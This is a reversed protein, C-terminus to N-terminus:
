VQEKREGEREIGKDERREKQAPLPQIHLSNLGLSVVLAMAGPIRMRKVATVNFRGIGLPRLSTM